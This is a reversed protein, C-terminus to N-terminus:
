QGQTVRLRSKLTVHKGHICQVYQVRLQRAIHKHYSLKKNTLLNHVSMSSIIATQTTCTQPLDIILM